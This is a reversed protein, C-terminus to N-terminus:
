PVTYGTVRVTLQDSRPHDDFAFVLEADENGALFDITQDASSVQNAIDLTASVQVNAATEDGHNTVVVDVHFREGVERVELVTAVPAPAAVQGRMQIAILAVVALLLATSVGFTVWEAASRERQQSM